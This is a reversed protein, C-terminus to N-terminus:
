RAPGGGCNFGARELHETALQIFDAGGPEGMALVDSLFECVERPTAASRARARAAARVDLLHVRMEYDFVQRVDGDTAGEGGLGAFRKRELLEAVRNPRMADRLSKLVFAYWARRLRERMTTTRANM